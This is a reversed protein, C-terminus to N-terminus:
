AKPPDTYLLADLGLGTLRKLGILVEFRPKRKSGARLLQSVASPSVDLRKALAAQSPVEAEYHRLYWWIWAVVRARAGEIEQEMTPM